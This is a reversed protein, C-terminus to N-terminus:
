DPSLYNKIEEMFNEADKVTGKPFDRILYPHNGGRSELKYRGVLEDQKPYHGSDCLLECFIKRKDEGVFLYCKEGEHLFVYGSICNSDARPKEEKHLKRPLGDKDEAEEQSDPKKNVGVPQNSNTMWVVLEWEAVSAFGSNEAATKMLALHSRYEEISNVKTWADNNGVHKLMIGDVPCVPPLDVKGRCWLHKLYVSLSKQAHAVRFEKDYGDQGNMFRKKDAPFEKNMHAKLEEVDSIFTGEDQKKSYKKALKQLYKEWENRIDANNQDPTYLRARQTAAMIALQAPDTGAFRNKFAIKAKNIQEIDM